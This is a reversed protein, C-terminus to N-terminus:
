AKGVNVELGKAEMGNKWRLLEQEVESETM